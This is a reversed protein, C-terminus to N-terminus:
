KLEGRWLEYKAEIPVFLLPRNRPTGDLEYTQDIRVDYGIPRIRHITGPMFSDGPIRIVVKEGLKFDGLLKM